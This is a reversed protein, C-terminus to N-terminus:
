AKVSGNSAVSGVKGIEMGVRVVTEVSADSNFKLDNDFQVGASSPFVVINTSGGYQKMLIFNRRVKM